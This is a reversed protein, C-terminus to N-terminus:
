CTDKRSPFQLIIVDWLTFRSVPDPCPIVNLSGHAWAYTIHTRAEAKFVMHGQTPSKGNTPWFKRMQFIDVYSDKWALKTSGALLINQNSKKGRDVLTYIYMQSIINLTKM